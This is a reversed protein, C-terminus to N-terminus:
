NEPTEDVVLNRVQIGIGFEKLQQLVYEEADQSTEDEAIERTLSCDIVLRKM